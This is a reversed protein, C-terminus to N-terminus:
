RSFEIEPCALQSKLESAPAGKLYVDFFTSICHATIAIQRRGDLPVIGLLRLVRIVLPSKLIAGNDSFFFHNAGRIEIMVRRDEPLRDHISRMNAMANRILEPGHTTASERSHDGLIFMFPQTVGEAIVRGIPAGDLNIGAKCRPDDHCLLLATAGGLSHGFMGVRKLDLRGRFTGSPDSANLRELQDLVFRCDATWARVLTGALKDVQAGDFNDLNNQSARPIVRGDPLVVVWSRYPADFGAVVHGHSALDEALTTYDTTLAAGGARMLVVPYLPEQPSVPADQFSHSRVRALDRTLFQSLLVGSQSEMAARWPAPLYDGFGESLNGPAAPYWIWALLERQSGSPALPDVQTDKWVFTTCGVAFPGTPEPLITDRHHDFLLLGLLFAIGLVILLGVGAVARITWRVLWLRSLRRSMLAVVPLVTLIVFWSGLPVVVFPFAVRSDRPALAVNGYIALTGAALILALGVLTVRTLAAWQRSIRFLLLIAAFPSLVWIAFLGLLVQSNNSRGTLLMLWASGVCGALACVVGAIALLKQWSVHEDCSPQKLTAM